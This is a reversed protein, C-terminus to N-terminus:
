FSLPREAVDEWAEVTIGGNFIIEDKVTLSINYQKGATLTLSAFTAKYTANQYTGSSKTKITVFTKGSYDGPLLVATYTSGTAGATGTAKPTINPDGTFGSSLTAWSVYNDSTGSITNTVPFPGFKIYDIDSAAIAKNYNMTVVVKALQHYFQFEFKNPSNNEAKTVAKAYLLEYNGSNQDTPITFSAPYNETASKISPAESTSGFSWASISRSENKAKWFLEDGNSDSELDQSTGSSVVHYAHSTYSASTVDVLTVKESGAWTTGTDDITARTTASVTMGSKTKGVGFQMPEHIPQPTAPTTTDDASCSTLSMLATLAIAAAVAILVEHPAIAWSTERERFAKQHYAGFNFGLMRLISTAKDMCTRQRSLYKERTTMM